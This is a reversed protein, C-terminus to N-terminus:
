QALKSHCHRCIEAGRKIIEACYPCKKKYTKLQIISYKNLITSAKNVLCAAGVGSSEFVTNQRIGKSDDWDIVLYFVKHKQKKPVALLFIGVTAMSTVTLRKSIHSTDDFLIKNISDRPIRGIIKGHRSMFVFDIKTIACDVFCPSKKVGPLGVIYKGMRIKKVAGVKKAKNKRSILQVVVAVFHVVVVVFTAFVFSLILEM